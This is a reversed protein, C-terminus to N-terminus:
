DEKLDELKKAQEKSSSLEDELEKVQQQNSLCTSAMEKELAEKGKSLAALM